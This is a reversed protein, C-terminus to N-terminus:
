EVWNALRLKPVREFERTNNSVLTVGLALAHAAIWLDNNGIPKGASELRARLVGYTEGVREDLAVVPILAVLSSITELAQERLTSKGAGFCL